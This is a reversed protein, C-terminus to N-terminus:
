LPLSKIVFSFALRYIKFMIIITIIIIIIIIIIIVIIIIIIKVIIFEKNVLSISQECDGIKEHSRKPIGRRVAM